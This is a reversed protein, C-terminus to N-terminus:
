KQNAKYNAYYDQYYKLFEQYGLDDLGDFYAKLNEETLETQGTIFKATEAEVYSVIISKLDNIETNEDPGFFVTGPYMETRYPYVNTELTAMYHDSWDTLDWEKIQYEKGALAAMSPYVVKTYGMAFGNLPSLRMLRYNFASNGYIGATDNILDDFYYSGDDELRWGSVIGLTDDTNQQPGLLCYVITEENFFLDAVMCCLEPYKTDASIALVGTNLYSTPTPWIKTDNYASTLPYVSVWENWTEPCSTVPTEAYVGSQDNTVRARAATEDVTYYDQAILGEEYMLNMLRLYEGWVEQDGYPFVPEGNRLCISKGTADATAYGLGTLITLGADIVGYGGAVPIINEGRKKFVRLMEIYEDITTPIELNAEDLWRQNIFVRSYTSMDDVDGIKGLAYIHGDPASIADAYEPHEDYIAKLGPMCTDIYEDIKLLMGEEQGYTVQQSTGIAMNLIIDPLDGTAFALNKYENRNSYQQIETKVGYKQELWQWFWIDEADGQQNNQFVAIKLTVDEGEKVFPITGPANLYDPLEAAFSATPVLLVLLLALVLSLTRKM